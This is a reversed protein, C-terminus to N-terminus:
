AAGNQRGVIRDEAVVLLVAAVIAGLPRFLFSIGITAFAVIQALAPNTSNLPALFLPTLVVATAQAYIFFDYYELASGVWGALAAKRHERSGEAATM